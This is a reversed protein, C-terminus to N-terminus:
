VNVFEMLKTKLNIVNKLESEWIVLTDYGYTKFYNIRDKPDQGRHWYDGYLEIIKNNTKDIFDPIKGGVIEDALVNLHFQGEFFLSNIINQLFVEAKNPKTQNSILVTKVFHPDNWKNKMIISHELIKSNMKKTLGKNWVVNGKMSIAIKSKTEKKQKQGLKGIRIKQKIEETLKKGKNPSNGNTFREKQSESMKQRTEESYVDVKDKNWPICGKKSIWYCDQSCYKRYLPIIKICYSNNCKKTEGKNWAIRKEM